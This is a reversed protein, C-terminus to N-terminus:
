LTTNIGRINFEKTSVAGTDYYQLYTKLGVCRLSLRWIKYNTWIQTRPLFTIIVIVTVYRNRSLHKWETDM